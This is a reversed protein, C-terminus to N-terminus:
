CRVFINVSVSPGNTLVDHVSKKRKRKVSWSANQKKRKVNKLENRRKRKQRPVAHMLKNNRVVSHKSVNPTCFKHRKQSLSMSQMSPVNSIPSLSLYLNSIFMSSVLPLGHQRHVRQVRALNHHLTNSIMWITAKSITSKMPGFKMMHVLVMSLQPMLWIKTTSFQGGILLFVVVFVHQITTMLLSIKAQRIKLNYFFKSDSRGPKTKKSLCIKFHCKLWYKNSRPSTPIRAKAAISVDTPRLPLFKTMLVLLIKWFYRGFQLIKPILFICDKNLM